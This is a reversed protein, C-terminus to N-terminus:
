VSLVELPVVAPVFLPHPLRNRAVIEEDRTADGYLRYALVVAPTAYSLRLARVRALEGARTRLDRVTEAQVAILAALVDDQEADGTAALEPDMLAIVRDRLQAAADYSDLPIQTAAVSAEVAASSRVLRVYADRRTAASARSPTSPDIADLTFASLQELMRFTALPDDSLTSLGFIADSIDSALTTPDAVLSAPLFDLAYKALNFAALREGGDLGGPVLRAADAIARSVNGTWGVSLTTVWQPGHAAVFRSVFSGQLLPRAADAKSETGAASNPTEGPFLNKGAEVFSLAFRSIGASQTSESVECGTCVVERLGFVPHVLPGSGATRCAAVLADRQSWPVFAEFSYTASQAGLDEVYPEDRGPYEHVPARRGLGGTDTSLVSFAVNRFSATRPPDIPM